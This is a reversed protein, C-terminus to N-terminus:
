KLPLAPRPTPRCQSSCRTIALPTGNWLVKGKTPTVEYLDFNSGVIAGRQGAAVYENAMGTVSLTPVAVTYNTQATGGPTTVTITNTVNKPVVRPVRLTIENATIYADKLDASVDNFSVSNVSCFNSGQIIVWDALSGSTIAATRNTPGSVSSIGPTGGCMEETEKKCASLAVVGLLLGFALPRRLNQYLTFM